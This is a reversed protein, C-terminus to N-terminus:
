RVAGSEAPEAPLASAQTSLDTYDKGLAQTFPTGEGLDEDSSCAAM